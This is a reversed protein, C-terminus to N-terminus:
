SERISAFEGVFGVCEEGGEVISVDLKLRAKGYREYTKRFVKSLGDKPLQCVARIDGLVPRRYELESRLVVVHAARDELAIWLAAYAALTAVTALSGGFATGLHNHNEKLPATLVVQGGEISEVRVGMSRCVPIQEHLFVELEESSIKGGM